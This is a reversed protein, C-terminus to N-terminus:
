GRGVVFLWGGGGQVVMSVAAPPVSGVGGRVSASLPRRLPRTARIGVPLWPV